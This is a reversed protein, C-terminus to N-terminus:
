KLNGKKFEGMKKKVYIALEPEKWRIDRFLQEIEVDIKDESMKRFRKAICSDIEETLEQM